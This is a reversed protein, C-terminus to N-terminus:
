ASVRRRVWDDRGRAPAVHVVKGGEVFIEAPLPRGNYESAMVFGYAGADRLAVEGPAEDGLAHDGFDDTSECVPGVVRWTGEGPARDLPEIRHRAGYLAPRLLDNMGADIMVWRREGSRKTQIVRAVVVGFPGVLSRGPEIVLKLTSLGHEALLALSAKVFEAPEAASAEGDDIGYGGGFDVYELAKGSAMRARAVEAVVRAAAVYPDPDRLMSGVHVSVGAATLSPHEDVAQWAAAVDGRAIGFKANDHGTAIHDHTDAKVGPNLRLAVRGGVGLARARAAVRHIEEVSEVQVAFIQRGLALDLEWDAKAVGSMVVSGPAVGLELVLELEAGSVVDAGAGARALTRIVSGASNAKVAYATLHPLPGFSAELNGVALALGDLDYVYAPTGAGAQRVLDLLPTGGFTARGQADRRFGVM